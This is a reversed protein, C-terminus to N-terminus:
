EVKATASLTPPKACLTDLDLVELSATVTQGDIGTGDVVIAPTGQGEIITGASVSWNYLAGAPTPSVTFRLAPTLEDTVISKTKGVEVKITFNPCAGAAGSPAAFSGVVFVFAAVAAMLHSPKM